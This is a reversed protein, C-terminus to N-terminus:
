NRQNGEAQGAGILAKAEKMLAHGILLDIWGGSWGPALDEADLHPLKKEALAAGEALALRAENTKHIEDDIDAGLLSPIPVAGASM